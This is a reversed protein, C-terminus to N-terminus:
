YAEWLFILTSPVSGAETWVIDFTTAGVNGVVGQQCDSTTNGCVRIAVGDGTLDTPSWPGAGSQAAVGKNGGSTSWTGVSHYAYQASGSSNGPGQGTLRIYAPTRGLNHTLTQTSSTTPVSAVSSTAIAGGSSGGVCAGSIAYCGSTLNIGGAFTSTATGTKDLKIVTTSATAYDFGIIAPTTTAGAVTSSAIYFNNGIHRMSTGVSAAGGDRLAVQPATSSAVVLAAGTPTTTGVGVATNAGGNPYIGNAPITSTAWKSNTTDTGTITIPSAGIVTFGTCSVSGSCSASTTANGFLANTGFGGVLGTLTAAGTGGNAVTLPSSLTLGAFTPSAAIKVSQDFWDNITANGNITLTRSADGTTLTLTRDAALDSGPAIILDHSANTDLIHLGTNTFTQDAAWINANSLNLGITRATSGNYAGSLTLSTDTATLDALNSGLSIGSITSNTLGANDLTGTLSPTWTLTDGAGVVTTRVTLGNFSSTSTAITVTPGDSTEGTPGIASIGGGGSGCDSGTVGLDGDNDVRVCQDGGGALSDIRVGGLLRLDGAGTLEMLKTWSSSFWAHSDATGVHYSLAERGSWTKDNAARGIGYEDGGLDILFPQEGTGTFSLADNADPIQVTGPFVVASPFSLTWTRNASLDQAGASSTIQNATGAVTITRSASVKSNFTSWDTSSLFGDQGSTAEQGNAYDISINGSSANFDNATFSSAGKTSGDAAADQISLTGASFSLPSAVSAANFAGTSGYILGNLTGATITGSVVLDNTLALDGTAYDFTLRSGTNVARLTTSGVWFSGAPLTTTGTGGSPITQPPTQARADRPNMVGAIFAGLLILVIVIRAIIRYM